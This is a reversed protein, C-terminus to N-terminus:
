PRMGGFSSNPPTPRRIVRRGKPVIRYKPRQPEPPAPAEGMIDEDEVDLLDSMDDEGERSADLLNGMGFVQERDDDSLDTLSSLASSEDSEEVEEVEEVVPSEASPPLLVPAPIVPSQSVEQGEEEDWNDQMTM